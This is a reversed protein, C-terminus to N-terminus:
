MQISCRFMEVSFRFVEVSCWSSSSHYDKAGLGEDVSQVKFQMKKDSILM